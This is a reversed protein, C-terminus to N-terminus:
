YASSLVIVITSFLCQLMMAFVVVINQLVASFQQGSEGIIWVGVGRISSVELCRILTEILYM